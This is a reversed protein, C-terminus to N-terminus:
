CCPNTISNKYANEVFARLGVVTQTHIQSIRGETLGFAAAIESLRMEEFYYMALVKKQIDPLSQIRNMVIQILEKKMLDDRGTTQHEDPIIEHLCIGESNEM